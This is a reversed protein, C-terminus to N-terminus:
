KLNNSLKLGDSVELGDLLAFDGLPELCAKKGSSIRQQAAFEEARVIKEADLM